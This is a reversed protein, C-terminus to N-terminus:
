IEVFESLPLGVHVQIIPKWFYFNKGHTMKENTLQEWQHVMEHVLVTLFVRKSTFKRRLGMKVNRNSVYGRCWGLTGDHFNRCEIQQPPILKSDFIAHNFIHWWYMVLSPTVEFNYKEGNLKLHKKIKKRAHVKNM